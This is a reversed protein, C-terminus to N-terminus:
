IFSPSPPSPHHQRNSPQSKDGPSTSQRHRYQQQLSTTSASVSFSSTTGLSEISACPAVARPAFFASFRHNEENGMTDLLSDVITNDYSRSTVGQSPPPITSIFNHPTRIQLFTNSSAPLTAVLSRDIRDGSSPIATDSGGGNQYCGSDADGAGVGGGARVLSSSAGFSGNEYLNCYSESGIAYDGPFTSLISIVLLM